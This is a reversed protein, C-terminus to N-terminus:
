RDGRCASPQPPIPSFAHTGDRSRRHAQLSGGSKWSDGGEQPHGDPARRVTRPDGLPQVSWRFGSNLARSPPARHLAAQLPGDALRQQTLSRPGCKPGSCRGQGEDSMQSVASVCILFGRWVGLRGPGVPATSPGPLHRAWARQSAQCKEHRQPLEEITLVGEWMAFNPTGKRRCERWWSGGAM